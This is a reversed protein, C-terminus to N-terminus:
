GDDAGGYSQSNGLVRSLLSARTRVGTKAFISKFHDQVTHESIFLDEALQRTDSGSVLHGLVERERPSLASARAFLSVRQGPTTEEITVAIDSDGDADGLRAARLTVWVGDSLHVRASPAHADVGAEVALLQAAVNYAAAPIPARDGPPPVLLRLYMETDPTQGRVALDASLLLVMPGLRPRDPSSSSIFNRATARRLAPTVPAWIGALFTTEERTFKAAQGRRWLDLFGWCGARDRFVLSAVDVVEYAALLERWLLSRSPGEDAAWLLGVRGAGLTTWRNLTTLYKLRILRPLEPLCPVDALPASGVETEPDTLLWAYADFGIARRIEGLVDLRLARDDSGAGCIRDIRELARELVGSRVV